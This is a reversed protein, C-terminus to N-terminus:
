ASLIRPLKFTIDERATTIDEISIPDYRADQKCYHGSGSIRPRVRRRYDWHTLGTLMEGRCTRNILSWVPTMRVM